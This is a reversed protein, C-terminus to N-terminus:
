YGYVKGGLDSWDTHIISTEFEIDLWMLGAVSSLEVPFPWPLRLDTLLAQSLVM